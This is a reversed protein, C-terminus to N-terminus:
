NINKYTATAKESSFQEKLFIRLVFECNDDRVTFANKRSVM